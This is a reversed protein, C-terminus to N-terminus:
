YLYLSIFRIKKGSLIKHRGVVHGETVVATVPSCQMVAVSFPHTSIFNFYVFSTIASRWRFSKCTHDEGATTRRSRPCPCAPSSDTQQARPPVSCGCGAESSSRCSTDWLQSGPRDVVWDTDCVVVDCCWKDATEPTFMEKLWQSDSNETNWLSKLPKMVEHTVSNEWEKCSYTM